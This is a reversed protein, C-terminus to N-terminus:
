WYESSVIEHLNRGDYKKVTPFIMTGILVFRGLVSVPHANPRCDSQSMVSFSLTAYENM